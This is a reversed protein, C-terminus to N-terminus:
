EITDGFEDTHSTGFEDTFINLQNYCDPHYTKGDKGKTYADGYYIANKCYICYFKIEKEKSM